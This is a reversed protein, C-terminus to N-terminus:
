RARGKRAKTTIPTAAQRLARPERTFLAPDMEAIDAVKEDLRAQDKQNGPHRPPKEM